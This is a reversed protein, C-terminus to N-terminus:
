KQSNTPKQGDSKETINIYQKNFVKVLENENSIINKDQILM